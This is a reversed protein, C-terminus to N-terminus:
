REPLGEAASYFARSGRLTLGLVALASLSIGLGLGLINMARAADKIEPREVSADMIAFENEPARLEPTLEWALGSLTVHALTLQVLAQRAWARGVTARQAFVVMAAGILLEALALPVVRKGAAQLAATYAEYVAKQRDRETETLNPKADIELSIDDPTAHLFQLTGSGVLV